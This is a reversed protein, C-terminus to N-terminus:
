ILLSSSSSVLARPQFIAAIVFLFVDPFPPGHLSVAAALWHFCQHTFAGLQLQALSRVASHSSESDNRLLAFVSLSFYCLTQFHPLRITPPNFPSPPGVMVKADMTEM